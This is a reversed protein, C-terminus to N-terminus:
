KKTLLKYKNEIAILAVYADERSASLMKWLSGLEKTNILNERYMRRLCRKLDYATKGGVAHGEDYLDKVLQEPTKKFEPYSKWM